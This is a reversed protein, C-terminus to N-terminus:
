HAKIKDTNSLRKFVWSKALPIKWLTELENKTQITNNFVIINDTINKKSFLNKLEGLAALHINNEYLYAVKTRDFFDVNLEHGIDQISHVSKDIGCGGIISESEDVYFLIFLNERVEAFAKLPRDHATWGAVFATIKKSIFNVEDITLLRNAQYIWVRSQQSLDSYSYM